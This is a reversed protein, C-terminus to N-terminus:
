KPKQACHQPSRHWGNLEGVFASDTDFLTGNHANLMLRTLRWCETTATVLLGATKLLLMGGNGRSLIVM